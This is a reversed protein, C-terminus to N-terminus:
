KKIWLKNRKIVFVLFLGFMIKQTSERQIDELYMNPNYSYLFDDISGHFSERKIVFSEGEMSYAGISLLKERILSFKQKNTLKIIDPLLALTEEVWKDISLKKQEDVSLVSLALLLLPKTKKIKKIYIINSLDEDREFFLSNFMIRMASNIVDRDITSFLPPLDFLSIKETEGLFKINEMVRLFDRVLENPRFVEQNSLVRYNEM